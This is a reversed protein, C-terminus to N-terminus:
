IYSNLNYINEMGQKWKLLILHNIINKENIPFFMIRVNKYDRKLQITHLSWIRCFIPLILFKFILFIKVM